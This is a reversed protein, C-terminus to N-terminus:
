ERLTHLRSTLRCQWRVGALDDFPRLSNATFRSLAPLRPMHTTRFAKLDVKVHSDAWQVDNLVLRLGSSLLGIVSRICQRQLDELPMECARRKGDREDYFHVTYERILSMDAQEGTTYSGALAEFAGAAEAKKREIPKVTRYTGWLETQRPKERDPLGRQLKTM